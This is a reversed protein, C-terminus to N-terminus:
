RSPMDFRLYLKSQLTTAQHAAALLTLLRGFEAKSLQPQLREWLAAATPPVFEKSSLLERSNANLRSVDAGAAELLGRVRDGLTLQYSQENRMARRGAATLRGGEVLELRLCMAICRRVSKESQHWVYEDLGDDYQLSLFSTLGSALVETALEDTSEATAREATRLVHRIKEFLSRDSAM